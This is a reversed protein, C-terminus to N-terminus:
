RNDHELMRQLRKHRERQEARLYRWMWFTHAFLAGDPSVFVYALYAVLWVACFGGLAALLTVLSAVPVAWGVVAALAAILGVAGALPLTALGFGRARDEYGTRLLVPQPATPLEQGEEIIQVRRPEPLAPVYNATHIPRRDM